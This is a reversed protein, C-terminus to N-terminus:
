DRAADGEPQSTESVNKVLASENVRQAGIYRTITAAIHIMKECDRLHNDGVTRWYTQVKGQPTKKEERRDACIHKLYLEGTKASITFSGVLGKMASALEDSAPDSCFMWLPIVAVKARTQANYVAAQTKRYLQRVPKQQVGRIPPQPVWYCEAAEGKFAKWGNSLCFRYQSQADFGTDIIACEKRVNHSVRLDELEAKTNAKGYAVLRSKGGFGFSRVLWWYHEGGREQPDAALFRVQEEPWAENFDYPEKRAELFGFDDIVGLRDQWPEGLTETVFAKLPEINGHKAEEVAKLFEVALKDWDCNEWIAEFASASFSKNDAPAKPNYDVPHMTRLIENRRDKEFRAKCAPNECEWRVTKAVEQYDWVGGPKTIENTEWVLGGCERAKPWLSSAEKSFRMPQSHGCAPCHYHARTQSGERFDRDLEDAEQGATGASIEICNPYTRTRKRLLDIAGQKWERREDCIVYRVSDSQLKTRSNSGRLFMSMTEFQVLGKRATVLLPAVPACNHVFPLLRTDLFESMQDASAMVWMLSDPEERVIRMVMIFLATTKFYQACAQVTIRRVGPTRSAKFIWAAMPTFSLRWHSGAFPGKPVIVNREAWTETSELSPPACASSLFEALERAAERWETPIPTVARRQGQGGGGM